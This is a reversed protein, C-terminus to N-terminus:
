EGKGKVLSSGSFIEPNKEKLQNIIRDLLETYEYKKEGDMTTLLKAEEETELKENEKEKAAKELKSKKDGKKKKKKKIGTDFDILQIDEINDEKQDEM